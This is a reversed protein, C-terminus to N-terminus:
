GVEKFLTEGGEHSIVYLKNSKPGSVFTSKIKLLDTVKDWKATMVSIIFDFTSTDFSECIEDFRESFPKDSVKDYVFARFDKYTNTDLHAQLEEQIMDPGTLIVELCENELKSLSDRLIGSITYGTGKQDHITVFGNRVLATARVGTIEPQLYVDNKQSSEDFDQSVKPLRIHELGSPNFTAGQALKAEIMETCKTLAQKKSMEPGIHKDGSITIEGNNTVFTTVVKGFSEHHYLTVNIEKSETITTSEM